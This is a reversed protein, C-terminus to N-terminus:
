GHELYLCKYKLYTEVNWASVEVVPMQVVTKSVSPLQFEDLKQACRGQRRTSSNWKMCGVMEQLSTLVMGSLHESVLGGRGRGAWHISYLAFCALKQLLPVEFAQPKITWVSRPMISMNLGVNRTVSLVPVWSKHRFDQPLLVFSAFWTPLALTPPRCVVQERM